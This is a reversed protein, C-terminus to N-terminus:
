KDSSRSKDKRPSTGINLERLREMVPELEEFRTRALAFGERKLEKASLPEKADVSCIQAALENWYGSTRAYFDAKSEGTLPTRQSDSLNHQKDLELYEDPLEEKSEVEENDSDDLDSDQDNGGTKGTGASYYSDDDDNVAGRWVQKHMTGPHVCVWQDRRRLDFSWCDDLTVERDGVELLGGYVYLVGGSIILSPKIRPLPEARQIAEPVQTEPNLTMVSSATLTRFGVGKTKSPPQEDNDGNNHEDSDNDKSEETESEDEKEETKEEERANESPEHKAKGNDEEIKEYVLNGQGDMFAFMNSRLKNVDWGEARSEDNGYEDVELDSDEEDSSEPAAERDQVDTSSQDANYAVEKGDKRRRRKGQGSGVTNTNVPFWKRREMDFAHLDNYFVSDLKYDYQEKDVVGGFVLLRNKYPVSGTGSRGCPNKSTEVQSRGISSTLREWTPPKDQLLPKLNLIWADTHVKTETTAEDEDVQKLSSKSLKSFGGHVIMKDEGIISANCASRPEPRMTLKSHPIDMWQQTQLNLVTVDNFWRPADKAAEFFGGFIIMFHKWVVASHGSRSSPMTGVRSPKIEEWSQSKIDYKWCDRYHHYEDGACLEGGFVYLCHNYYVCSHACRAPPTVPTLIRKWEQKHLDFKLLHDLVINEVGDYFEGGFMYIEANKKKTDEYLTLTANARAPPFGELPEITTSSVQDRQKYQQLLDDLSLKNNDRSVTDDTLAEGTAKQLRKQAKKDAKAEKKVQLAAKKESDAKKGKKKAM